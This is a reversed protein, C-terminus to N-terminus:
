LNGSVSTNFYVIQSVNSEWTANIEAAKKMATGITEFSTAKEPSNVITTNGDEEFRVFAKKSISIIYM